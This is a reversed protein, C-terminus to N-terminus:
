GARLRAEAERVFGSQGALIKRVAEDLPFYAARDCEPVQITRGSRPPWVLEFTTSCFGGLDLDALIMWCRVLKGSRQRLPALETFEGAVVLGTEELFERLAAALPAEGEDVLGKPISWAGNDKNKWFPGGPHVLLFEPGAPRQRVALIGASIQGRRAM